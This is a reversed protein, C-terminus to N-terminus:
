QIPLELSFKPGGAQPYDGSDSFEPCYGRDDHGQLPKAMTAGRQKEWSASLARTGPRPGPYGPRPAERDGRVRHEWAQHLGGIGQPDKRV